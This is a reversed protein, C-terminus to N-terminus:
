NIEARAINGIARSPPLTDHGAEAASPTRAGGGEKCPESVASDCVNALALYISVTRFSPSSQLFQRQTYVSKSGAAESVADCSASLLM